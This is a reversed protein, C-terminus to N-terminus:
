AVGDGAGNPDDVNKKRYSEQRAHYYGLAFLGSEERSLTAPLPEAGLRDMIGGILQEYYVALGATDSKHALSSIHHQGKAFISPFVSAPRTMASPFFADRISRNIRKVATKQLSEYHWFLQGLLYAKNNCNPNLAVTTEEKVSQSNSNKLLYMKIAAMRNEFLNGDEKIRLLLLSLLERPYPTDTIIAQILNDYIDASVERNDKGVCKLADMLQYINPATTEKDNKSSIITARNLHARLNDLMQGFSCHQFETLAFRVNHNRLAMVYFDANIGDLQEVYKEVSESGSLISTVAHYLAEDEESSYDGEQRGFGAMSFATALSDGEDHAAWFVLYTNGIIKFHRKTTLLYKLANGYQETALLSVPAIYGQQKDYWNYACVDYNTGFSVLSIGTGRAMPVGTIAPHVRAIPVNEEGTVLCTGMVTDSGSLVKTQYYKDWVAAIDPDAHAYTGDEFRFILNSATLIADLNERICDMDLAQRPDWKAFFRWLATAKPSKELLPALIEEHLHKASRCKVAVKEPTDKEGALGLLYAANDCAFFPTPGNQHKSRYPVSMTPYKTIVKKKLPVQYGLSAVEILQGDTGIVIAFQVPVSSWGSKPISGRNVLEQGYAALADLVM